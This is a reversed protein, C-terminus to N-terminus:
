KEIYVSRVITRTYAKGESNIGKIDITVNYVDSKKIHNLLGTFAAEDLRQLQNSQSVLNGERDVVRVTFSLDEQKGLEKTSQKLQFEVKDAKIKGPMKLTFPAKQKYDSVIMYADKAHATMLKVHWEGIEMRNIKFTRISAGKFYSTEDGITVKSDEDTYVKGSPSILQIKVESSATLVSVVGETKTDVAFTQDIWKNQILEGGLVTQNSTTNLDNVLERANNNLTYPVFTATSTRLYPEIRSFVASGKRIDDHDFRSDTFLHTGYPLKTSWENVLGDNSGYASLYLGGLSLASFAPGWSTGAVTYYRNLKVNPNNDIVSRFQAMEGTQLSYTGDDRQGLLSALWGAWWSYSLDALNSGYHPSALTIVKGVFRNAGYQILAAQTDIGGKSHAVINVKKGFHNYIEELKAALLKGNDWQSASGKGAADYLQVFVTQYGARYAYDYMDNADHYVTKGYWSDASGNRGQVFVIPPRNEDYNLPKEGLFWDGPNFTEKPPLMERYIPTANTEATAIGGVSTVLLIFAAILVMCRKFLAQM